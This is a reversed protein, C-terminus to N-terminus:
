DKKTETGDHKESTKSIKTSSKTFYNRVMKIFAVFARVYRYIWYLAAASLCFITLLKFILDYNDLVYGELSRVMESFFGLSMLILSIATGKPVDDGIYEGSDYM